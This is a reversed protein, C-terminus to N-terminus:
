YVRGEDKEEGEKKSAMHNYWKKKLFYVKKVKKGTFMQCM